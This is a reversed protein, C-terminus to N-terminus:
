PMEQPIPPSTTGPDSVRKHTNYIFIPSAITHITQYFITHMDSHLTIYTAELVHVGSGPM